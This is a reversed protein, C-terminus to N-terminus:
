TKCVLLRIPMPANTAKALKGQVRLFSEYAVQGSTAYRERYMRVELSNRVQRRIFRSLDGFAIVKAASAIGPMSPSQFVPYGEITIQGNAARDVDLAYQGGTSAKLKKLVTLTATSMLFAGNQAYADDVSAILDLVEDATPSAAATTVGADADTLLSTIFAAGVGRAMRRGFSNALLGALDYASDEVLEMPCIVHGSRFM